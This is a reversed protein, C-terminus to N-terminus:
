KKKRKARPRGEKVRKPVEGVFLKQPNGIISALNEQIDRDLEDIAQDKIKYTTVTHM